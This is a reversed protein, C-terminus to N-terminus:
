RAAALPKKARSAPIKRAGFDVSIGLAQLITVVNKFSPNGGKALMRYLHVRNIGTKKALMSLGGKAQALTRLAVLLSDADGELIAAQLFAAAERPDKLDEILRTKFDLTAM